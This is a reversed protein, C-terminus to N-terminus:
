QRAAPPHPRQALCAESLESEHQRLCVAVRGHGPKVDKCFKEADPKCAEMAVQARQKFDAWKAKCEASVQEGKEQMCAHVEARGKADPCLRAVDARCPQTAPDPPASQALAVPVAFLSSCVIAAALRSASSM